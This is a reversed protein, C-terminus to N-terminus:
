KDIKIPVDRRGTLTPLQALNVRECGYSPEVTMQFGDGERGYSPEVTMRFGDGERGYSPEVTM